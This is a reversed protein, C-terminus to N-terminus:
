DVYLFENSSLVAQCLDTLAQLEPDPMSASITLMPLQQNLFNLVAHLEPQTVPRGYAIQWATAVQSVFSPPPPGTFEKDSQWSREKNDATKLKITVPWGFSDSNVNERCDVALDFTDGPQVEIAAVSTEVTNHLAIWEGHLGSRSSVIRGRVGDGSESPHHLQGTISVVGAFPATWRRITAHQQDNGAHGGNAHLIVYGTNPDPLNPGGQWTSGTWHPLTAFTKTRKTEVNFEGYGFQWPRRTREPILQPDVEFPLQPALVSEARVRAAMAAAQKLIFDSNMLMLSQTAVTSSPRKDCNIEMVPADFARMLTEPKSRKTEVYLSRRTMDEVVVQGVFDEAVLIPKGFLTQKLSGSAALVRDRMVEADLRRVSMRGLLLNSPDVADLDPRRATSQRYTTSTMLLRHMRKFGNISQRVPPTLGGTTEPTEGPSERGGNAQLLEVALWDLLEPHTPREGLQGFDGPTGVLGRGFHHMWIRNALARGFLPDRGSTLYRAFALRRGSTPLAADKVPFEVVHGPPAAITLMAPTVVDKPQRHDGRHFITTPPPQGSQEALLSVFDEVPKEHRKAQITAADKKLEEAAKENYQYLNGANINLSPNTAVLQKQEATRKDATTQFASRLVERQDAPRKELDKDFAEAILKESKTNYVAQMKAAEAEVEAAKARDADTYLSVIRDRPIVWGKWNLAPEFIARLRYYDAQSIPDYRHDHCQACGVTLGLLSSSVIKVTDAVVQNRSTEPDGQGSATPDAAMRLFGTAVLKEISEPPLNKFPPTVLEDGALQEALFQDLPKDDNLARIVYDRYKYIYPRSTDVNGDGESDAYGAADLWHRGWREGYHPSALLRDILREYADPAEDSLFEETEERSPPLGILDFCARKILTLKDAEPGLSLGREQLKALIFLDIPSRVESKLDSIQSKLNSIQSKLNSIPVAPRKVPQFAWFSREEDTIGLGKGIEAPEERATKAGGAIWKTLTEIERASVKTAGPPMEGAKIRQLLLSADPMGPEIAPGSEGGRKMLRALRLDLKGKPEEEAGHCDFCHAKLIPRVHAEFTLEEGCSLRSQALVVLCVVCGALLCRGRVTM